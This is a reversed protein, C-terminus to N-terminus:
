SLMVETLPYVRRSSRCQDPEVARAPIAASLNPHAEEFFMLKSVRCGLNDRAAGQFDYRLKCERSLGSILEKPSM